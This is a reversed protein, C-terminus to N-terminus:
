LQHSQPGACVAQSRSLGTGAEINESCLGAESSCRELLWIRIATGCLVAGLSDQDLYARGVGSPADQDILALISM